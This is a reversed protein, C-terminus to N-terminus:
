RWWALFGLPDHQRAIALMGLFCLLAGVYAVARRAPTRARKLALSGLVVYAVLLALKAHLWPEGLPRGQLVTLLLLAALLLASDIAVSLRRVPAALATPSGMLVALGRVAFLTGSAVALGIHLLRIWPYADALM